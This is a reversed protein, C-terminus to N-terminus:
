FFFIALFPSDQICPIGAANRAEVERDVYLRVPCYINDRHGGRLIAFEQNSEGSLLKGSGSDTAGIILATGQKRILEQLLFEWEPEPVIERSSPDAKDPGVIM